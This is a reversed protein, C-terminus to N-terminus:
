RGLKDTGTPAANGAATSHSAGRSKKLPRDSPADDPARRPPIGRSAIAPPAGSGIAFLGISEVMDLM